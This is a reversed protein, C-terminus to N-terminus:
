KKKKKKSKNKNNSNNKQINTQKIENKNESEKEFTDNDDDSVTDVKDEQLEPKNNQKDVTAKETKKKTDANVTVAEEEAFKQRRVVAELLGLFLFLYPTIIPTSLNFTAQACYSIIVLTMILAAISNKFNKIGKVALAILVTLYSILGLAGTTVLYHLYENHASDFVSGHRKLMDERYEAKMIQGFTDPGCGVLMNKIGHTKFIIVSRIWAYGRHTGWKDDLRLYKTLKGLDTTKDIASFYVFLAVLTGACLGVFVSAAIEVWKPSHADGFKRRIFYFLVSLVAFLAIVIYVKNNYILTDPITDLPKHEDDFLTSILRLVKCSFTMVFFSLMYKFMRDANGCAYIFLIAMFAALGFYGSDSDAVLLGMFNIGLAISYFVTSPIDKAEVLLGACVPLAVCVFCSFMNKNGITSIFTNQQEKKIQEIIKFPDSYFEHLVAILCVISATIIFINFVIDKHKYYRSVLFYCLIYAAITILGSDRGKSGDVAEFGYESLLASITCVVLFGIMGWDEISMKFLKKPWMKKDIGCIYTAILFFLLALTTAIFYHLRDKRVNFLMDTMFVPFLTFMSIVFLATFKEHMSFTQLSPNLAKQSSASNKSKTQKKM